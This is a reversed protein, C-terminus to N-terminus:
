SEEGVIAPRIEISVWEGSEDHELVSMKMEHKMAILDIQALLAPYVWRQLSAGAPRLAYLMADIWGCEYGAVFAADAYPGGTSEVVVFPMVLEREPDESM